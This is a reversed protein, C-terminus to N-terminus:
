SRKAALINNYRYMTRANPHGEGASLANGNAGGGGLGTAQLINGIAHCDGYQSLITTPWIANVTPDYLFYNNTLDGGVAYEENVTLWIFNSDFKTWEPNIGGGAIFPNIFNQTITFGAPYTLLPISTELFVCNNVLRTGTTLPVFALMHFANGQNYNPGNDVPSTWSSNTFSVNLGGDQIALYPLFGCNTVTCHDMTWPPNTLNTSTSAWNVTIAAGAQNVGAVGLNSFDVYNFQAYFSRRGTGTVSTVYGPNGATGTATRLFAHAGPTGTFVLLTDDNVTITPTVGSSGSLEIGAPNGASSLVTLPTATIAAASYAGIAANGLLSLKCGIVSLTGTAVTLCTTAAGTGLTVDGVMVVPHTVTASDGAMPPAVGGWTAPDDWRGAQSTTLARSSASVSVSWNPPRIWWVGGSPVAKLLYNGSSPPTWTVTVPGTSNSFAAATVSFDSLNWTTGADPSWYFYMSASFNTNNGGTYTLTLTIPNGTTGSAPGAFSYQPKVTDVLEFATAPINWLTLVDSEVWRSDPAGDIWIPEGSTLDDVIMGYTAMANGITQMLASFTSKNAAWWAANLRLRGGMPVYGLTYDPTGGGVGHLAPWVDQNTLNLATEIIGRLPHTILGSAAEEYRVLFPLCPMGGADTSTYGDLRQAGTTLDFKFGGAAFWTTGGDSSYPQYDEYLKIPLGTSSDAMLALIRSDGGSMDQVRPPRNYPGYMGLGGATAGAFNASLTLSTDSNVHLVTYSATLYNSFQYQDGVLVQTTFSTGTGTVTPGGNTLAVTGTIFDSPWAEISTAANYPVPGLDSEDVYLGYTMSNLPTTGAVQNFPMGSNGSPLYWSTELHGGSWISAINAQFAANFPSVPDAAISRMMEAWWPGPVSSWQWGELSPEPAGLATM